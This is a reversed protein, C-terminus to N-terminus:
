IEIRDLDIKLGDHPIEIDLGKTQKLSALKANDREHEFDHSVGILYTKRPKLEEIVEMSQELSLHTPYRRKHHLTDIVLYEIDWKRLVEMVHPPITSVDSIYVFKSNTKGFSFGLSLYNDGHFVPLPTMELGAASFPALKDELSPTSMVHYKISAIFVKVPELEAAAPVAPDPPPALHAAAGVYSPEPDRVLYPFSRKIMDYTQKSAFVEVFSERAVVLRLDDLGFVADAHDHTLVVADLRPIGHRPYWTLASSRFTKGCDIQVFRRKDGPAAAPHSDEGDFCILMSPNGRFNKNVEPPGDHIAKTCTECGGVKLYNPSIGLVCDLHPNCSSTGTGMFVICPKTGSKGADSMPSNRLVGHSPDEAEARASFERQVTIAASFGLVGLAAAKPAWRRALNVFSASM